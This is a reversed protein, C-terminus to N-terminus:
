FLWVRSRETLKPLISQPVWSEGTMMSGLFTPANELTKVERAPSCTGETREGSLLASEKEGFFPEPLRGQRGAAHRRVQPYLHEMFQERSVDRLRPVPFRQEDM